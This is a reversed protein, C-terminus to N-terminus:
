VFKDMIKHLSKRITNFIYTGSEIVDKSLNSETFRTSLMASVNSEHIIIKIICSEDIMPIYIIINDDGNEKDPVQAIQIMVNASEDNSSYIYMGPTGNDHKLLTIRFQDGTNIPICKEIIDGCINFYILDILDQKNEFSIIM